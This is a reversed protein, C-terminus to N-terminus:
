NIPNNSGMYKTVTHGIQEMTQLRTLTNKTGTIPNVKCVRRFFIAMYYSVIQFFFLIHYTV